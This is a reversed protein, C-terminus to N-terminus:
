RGVGAVKWCELQDNYEVTEMVDHTKPDTEPNEPIAYGKARLCVYFLNAQQRVDDVTSANALLYAAEVANLQRSYCDKALPGAQGFVGGGLTIGDGLVLTILPDGLVVEVKQGGAVICDRTALAATEYEARTVGGKLLNKQYDTTTAYLKEVDKDAQVGLNPRATSGGNATASGGCGALLIALAPLAVVPSITKRM